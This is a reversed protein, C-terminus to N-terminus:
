WLLPRISILSKHHTTTWITPEFNTLSYRGAPRLSQYCADPNPGHVDKIYLMIADMMPSTRIQVLDDVANCDEQNSWIKATDLHQKHSMEIPAAQSACLRKLAVCCFPVAVEIRCRTTTHTVEVVYSTPTGVTLLDDRSEKIEAGSGDEGHQM